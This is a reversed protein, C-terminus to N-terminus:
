FCENSPSCLDRCQMDAACIQKGKCDDNIECDRESPLQCVGVTTANEADDQPVRVCRGGVDRCDKDEDCQAHCHEFVCALDGECDSDLVCKGGLEIARLQEETSDCANLTAAVALVGAGVKGIVSRRARSSKM